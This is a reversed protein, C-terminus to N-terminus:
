FNVFFLYTNLFMVFALLGFCVFANMLDQKQKPTRRM